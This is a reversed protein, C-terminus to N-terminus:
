DKLTKKIKEINIFFIQNEYSKLYKKLFFSVGSNQSFHLFDNNIPSKIKQICEINRLGVSINQCGIKIIFHV